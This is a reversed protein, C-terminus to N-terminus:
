PQVVPLRVAPDGIVIYNRADITAIRLKNLEESPKLEKSFMLRQLEAALASSLATYRDNLAQVAAGVTSGRMLRGVTSQLADLGPVEGQEGVSTTWIIDVHGIVALAGGGSHALLRQPLRAVFAKPAIVQPSGKRWSAVEDIKPTGASFGGLMIAVMGWPRDEEGLEEGAFFHASALGGGAPGPWDACVLAGQLDMQRPDGSSFMVGWSGTVLVAPVEPSRFLGILHTKTARDRMIRKVDWDPHTDATRRALVELANAIQRTAVDGPNQVGFIVTRRPLTVAGKEAAVVSRAYNAYEDPTEFHLRGVAYQADLEYQFEFPVAEPDGVILLYYPMRDPSARQVGAGHRELFTRATDGPRYGEAGSFERYYDRQATAQARRLQLLPALAERVDPGIGAAFIVGWGLEALDTQLEARVYRDLEALRQAERSAVLFDQEAPTLAAAHDQAWREADALAAGQLLLARSRDQEEWLSAQRQWLAENAERWVRNASMIALLWADNTIEYWVNGARATSRLLYASVLVDAVQNPLGATERLGRYVTNRAGDRTILHEDFWVRLRREPIGTRGTMDRLVGEYYDNLVTDRNFPGIDQIEIPATGPPLSTWLRYCVLQLQVPEIFQDARITGDADDGSPRRFDDLLMEAAWQAFPRGALEAPRRLAEVASTFDLPEMYLRARFNAPFLAAYRDLRGFYEARISLVLTLQPHDTLAQGLEWFFAEREEPSERSLTFVEELQDIVLVRRTPDPLGPSAMKEFYYGLCDSLKGGAQLDQWDQAERADVEGRAFQLHEMLAQRAPGPGIRCVPLVQCGQQRLDGLLRAHILSSKGVGADGYLIVVPEGAMTLLLLEAAERDRGFLLGRDSESYCRPGVYPNGPLPGERRVDVVRVQDLPSVVPPGGGRSASLYYETTAAPKDALTGAPPVALKLPEITVADAEAVEWTLTVEQGLIVVPPESRFTIIQPPRTRIHWAQNAALVPEVLRDHTLEVWAGGGRLETRLFFRRALADVAANPLTGTRGAAENRLIMSRIGTETILEREFWTRLESESVGAAQVTPEALVAALTDAYFKELAKSVDGAERLDAETIFLTASQLDSPQLNADPMAATRISKAGDDDKLRDGAAKLREWLQYCVVQLHVPEVYQGTITTKREPVRVQCLDNVMKDAVGPAFPRGGLEAPRRIADLAADVGMREMYFRGRLRNFLSAAYPDLAAVYDERLTLVVWLDPDDLLAQNLQRFFDERELWRDPHSTIIEEFQDIVLAFRPGAKAEAPPEGEAPRAAALEPKYVWHRTRQGDEAVVTERALCTLFESVTLRALQAPPADGQDLSAMLNFAFINAVDSVGAPLEGSVRANPLVQFGEVDRLRPIVRANLLSSKGAGSQAYFLLLRESIIRATLDRAERERGFFLSRDAESFTRPGVYPNGIPELPPQNM